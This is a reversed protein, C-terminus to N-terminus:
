LGFLCTEWDRDWALDIYGIDKYLDYQSQGSETAPNLIWEYRRIIHFRDWTVQKNPKYVNGDVLIDSVAPKTTRGACQSDRAIILAVHQITTQASGVALKGRFELGKSDIKYGIRGGLSSNQPVKNLQITVGGDNCSTTGNGDIVGEEGFGEGHESGQHLQVYESLIKHLGAEIEKGKPTQSLVDTRKRSTQGMARAVSDWDVHWGEGHQAKLQEIM